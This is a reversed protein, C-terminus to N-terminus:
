TQVEELEAPVKLACAGDGCYIIWVPMPTGEYTVPAVTVGAQWVQRPRGGVKKTVYRGFETGAANSSYIKTLGASDVQLIRDHITFDGEFPMTGLDTEETPYWKFHRPNEASM